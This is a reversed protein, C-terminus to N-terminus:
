PPPPSDAPPSAQEAPKVGDVGDCNQDAGDGTPDDAGPHVAAANDDCDAPTCSGDGDIDSSGAPCVAQQPGPRVHSPAGYCAMLTMAM